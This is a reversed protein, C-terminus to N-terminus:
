QSLCITYRHDPKDRLAFEWEGSLNITSTM